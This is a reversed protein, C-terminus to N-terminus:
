THRWKGRCFCARKTQSAIKKLMVLLNQVTAIDKDVEGATIVVKQLEICHEDFYAQIEEGYIKNVNRDVVAM